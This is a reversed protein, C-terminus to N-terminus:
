IPQISQWAQLLQVCSEVLYLIQLWNCALMVSKIADVAYRATNHLYM